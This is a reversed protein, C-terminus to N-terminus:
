PKRCAAAADAEALRLKRDAQQRRQLTASDLEQRAARVRAEQRRCESDVKAQRADAAAQARAAKAEENQRQKELKDLERSRQQARERAAKQEAPTPGPDAEVKRVPETGAPCNTNSYTVKGDPAECRQVTQAFTAPASFWVAVGLAAISGGRLIM